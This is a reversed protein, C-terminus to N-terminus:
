GATICSQFLVDCCRRVLKSSVDHRLYSTETVNKRDHRYFGDSKEFLELILSFLCIVDFRSRIM